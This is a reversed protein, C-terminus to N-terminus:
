PRWGYARWLRFKEEPQAVPGNLIKIQLINKFRKYTFRL